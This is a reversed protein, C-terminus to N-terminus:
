KNKHELYELQQVSKKLIMILATSNAIGNQSHKTNEMLIFTTTKANEERTVRNIVKFHNEM